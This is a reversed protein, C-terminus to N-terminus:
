FSDRGQSKFSEAFFNSIKEKLKEEREWTPEEEKSHSWQVKCMWIKKNRTVRKFTELLKVPYEQYTLDENTVL